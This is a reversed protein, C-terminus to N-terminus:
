RHQSRDQAYAPDQSTVAERAASDKQKLADAVTNIKGAGLFLLLDDPLSTQEIQNILGTWHSEYPIYHVPFSVQAQIAAALLKSSIGPLPEEGAAYIDTIILEDIKHHSFVSIFQDWLGATRSYRHPQFAVRLRQETRKRAVTLTRDIETPHHGYDDFLMAGRYSGKYSFRRDIGQFNALAQAITGFPIGLDLALATAATANLLNHEGPMTIYLAGLPISDTRRWITCTSYRAHISIDRACIDADESFGYSVTKIQHLPLLSRINEDDICLFAKGYFPINSLFQRFTAKVDDLDHYIDVHEFDINTVVAVSPYLKLFSRDSEDAEAVIFKGDGFRANTASNHLHGGVVITPNCDAEVLIHAIMSTTTTKGHAGAIAISYDTSRMLEALMVARQITPIGRAQAALIEPHSRHVMSTYVLLDISTDHCGPQNNGEIITCGLRTLDNISKQHIDSDCGSITYGQHHLITAIASMGIGGIGVFHIHQKKYPIM